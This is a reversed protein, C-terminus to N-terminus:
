PYPLFDKPKLKINNLYNKFLDLYNNNIDDLSYCLKNIKGKTELIILYEKKTLLIKLENLVEKTYKTIEDYLKDDSILLSLLVQLRFIIYILVHKLLRNTINKRVQININQYNIFQHEIILRFYKNCNNYVWLNAYLEGPIKIIDFIYFEFLQQLSIQVDSYYKNNKNIGSSFMNYYHGVNQYQSVLSVLLNRENVIIHGLEHLLISKQVDNKYKFFVAGCVLLWRKISRLYAPKVIAIENIKDLYELFESIEKDPEVYDSYFDLLFSYEHILESWTKILSTSLEYNCSYLLTLNLEELSDTKFNYTFRKGM